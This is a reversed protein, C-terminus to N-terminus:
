FKNWYRELAQKADDAHWEEANTQVYRLFEAVVQAEDTSLRKFNKLKDRTNQRNISKPTGNEGDTDGDLCLAFLLAELMTETDPTSESSLVWVLCAPLYFRFGDPDLFCFLSSFKQFVPYGHLKVEDPVQEWHIDKRDRRAIRLKEKGGYGDLVWAEEASRGKGLRVDAFVQRIKSVLSRRIEDSSSTENM